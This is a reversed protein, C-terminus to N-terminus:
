AFTYLIFLINNQLFYRQCINKVWVPCINGPLDMAYVGTKSTSDPFDFLSKTVDRFGGLEQMKRLLFATCSVEFCVVDGGSMRSTGNKASGGNIRM